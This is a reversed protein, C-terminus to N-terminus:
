REHLFKRNIDPWFEEFVNSVGDNLLQSLYKMAFDGIGREQAPYYYSSIQMTAAVGGMESINFTSKGADNRTIWLRSFAYFSRHFFSGHYLTYYRPDEHTLAPLIAGSMYNGVSQDTFTRWYYRTFGAKGKGFEPYTNTLLEIQAQLGVFVFSSYDVTNQTALHFKQGFSLPPLYTDASVAQFNPVIGAIRKTQQGGDDSSGPNIPAADPTFAPTVPASLAAVPPAGFNPAAGAPFVSYSYFANGSRTGYALLPRSSDSAATLQASLRMPALLFVLSLGLLVSHKIV